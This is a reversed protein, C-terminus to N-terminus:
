FTGNKASNTSKKKLNSDVIVNIQGVTGQTMHMNIIIKGTLNEKAVRMIEDVVLHIDSELSM